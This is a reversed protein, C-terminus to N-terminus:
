PGIRQVIAARTEDRLRVMAPWGSGEPAMRRGISVTIPGPRPLWAESPLIDRTGRIAIPVVSRGTEVACKFAGLRFPLVGPSRIFTGEPFVLVSHGRRLAEAMREADTVTRSTQGREVTLHGAKRIATGVVPVSLLEQKAVFRVDAPLAALLAVVDLYSSHNAALIVPDSPELQESTEVRVACGAFALILRCWAHLVKGAARSPVALLLAWLTMLGPLLLAGLYLALVADRMISGLRAARGRLSEAFLRVLQARASPRAELAGAVYAERTAGRRVKGSPTKRVSGPPVLVIVDAPIGVSTAVRDMVALQLHERAARDAERTEAIVVLRETGIAPDFVGFAAVCGKRIGEIAGVIEEVEQPYLNRGAKIIMDKRRGAIFLEGDSQYGLDGSDLWGDVLAERTARPNRFYGSTVSPGRFVIRGQRREELLRGATDVIRVDHGVLPRGCSVFRLAAPEGPEAPIAEGRQQFPERAIADIRPARGPPSMTLAVSAEALGYVPCLADARFGCPAFRRSFREMTEPSVPESGNMALRWTGLDLGQIEEDTVKRACLDYAFNPATSVTARHAHIARLWRAPRSLFALPSLIAVPIGFHLSGLWSGILGMDHYLPLWSVAVDDPGIGIAQGIARINALINAHSLQVGKPAGTSGSTYQILAAGDRNGRHLTGPGHGTLARATHILRLSPVRPRILAAVRLAESFTVLVRAQSNNLIGVQRQAYEAIRDRRLPPYMPVPVGGALLIGFFTAFFAPESRLMLAAADGPALHGALGGAVDRAREWLQGYTITEVREDATTLWIHVRAPHATAHWELVEQLTRASDPATEAAGPGPAPAPLIEPERPAAALIATVLDRPSVAQEIVPDPLRVAFEKEIRLLLEVRELSGIGLDRELSDELAVARRAPPGGLEAVLGGAIALVGREVEHEGHAAM